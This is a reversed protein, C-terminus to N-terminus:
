LSHLPEDFPSGFMRWLIEATAARPDIGYEGAAALTARLVGIMVNGIANARVRTEVTDGWHFILYDAIAQEYDRDTRADEARLEPVEALMRYRGLRQPEVADFGDIIVQRLRAIPDAFPVGANLRAVFAAVRADHQPFAAAAKTPFHLFFTRTSVGAAAAIEEVTTEYFGKENFLRIAHDSLATHTDRRQQERSVPARGAKKSTAM